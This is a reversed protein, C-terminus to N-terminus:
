AQNWVGIATRGVSSGLGQTMPEAQPITGVSPEAKTLTERLEVIQKLINVRHQLTSLYSNLEGNTALSVPKDM